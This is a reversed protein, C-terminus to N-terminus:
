KNDIIIDHYERAHTSSLRSWRPTNNLQLQVFFLREKEMVRKGLILQLLELNGQTKYVEAIVQKDCRYPDPVHMLMYRNQRVAELVIKKNYQFTGPLYDFVRVNNKVAKLVLSETLCHEHVYLISGPYQKIAELIVQTDQKMSYSLCKFVKGDQKVAALVVDRDSCLPEKINCIAMGNRSLLDLVFTKNTLICNSTYQKEQLEYCDHICDINNKVQQLLLVEERVIWCLIKYLFIRIGHWPGNREISSYLWMLPSSVLFLIACYCHYALILSNM